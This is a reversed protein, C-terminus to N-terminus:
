VLVTYKHRILAGPRNSLVGKPVTGFLRVVREALAEDLLRPFRDLWASPGFFYHKKNM